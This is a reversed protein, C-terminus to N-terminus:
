KCGVNNHRCDHEERTMELQYISQLVEKNEGVVIQQNGSGGGGGVGPIVAGSYVKGGILTRQPAPESPAAVVTSSLYRTWKESADLFSAACDAKGSVFSAQYIRAVNTGTTSCVASASGSPEFSNWIVCGDIITASTATREPGKGYNIYWGKALAGAEAPAGTVQGTGNFQGVNVLDTDRFRKNDYKMAELGTNFTRSPDVGYSWFGYFRKDSTAAPALKSKIDVWGNTPTGCSWTTNNGTCTYEVKGSISAASGIDCAGAEDVAFTYTAKPAQCANGSGTSTSSGGLFKNGSYASSLEASKTGNREVTLNNTVKCGMEACGAPNSLRCTTGNDGLTNRDGTGLFTRMYGTDPQITNATIYTFGPRTAQDDSVQTNNVAVQLSRAAYWDKVEGEVGGVKQREGPIWFRVTWVQGGADAITATDFLLDADGTSSATNGLDLMAVGAPFPYNLKDSLQRTGDGNFFSWLTDGSGIDVMALGRGRVLYPDQGGNLMVVWQERAKVQAGEPGISWPGTTDAIAVAGIPPPKPAYNSFSEGVKLALPDCPQPWSWLFDGMESPGRGAQGTVQPARILDTLDLAFRHVGGTGTGVVAITRFETAQKKGDLSADGSKGVGDLWVERVMATSDVFYAHKGMKMRLKPLMDPPVFAWAEEGTGADYEYMGTVADLSKMKGNHFAHLMGSNSGVLVIRDRDGHRALYEDYADRKKGGGADYDVKLPTKGSYLTDLCQTTFGCFFKPTPAEVSIPSSHFIDNLLFERDYGRLAPDANLVDAGRYYRIVLKACDLPPLTALGLQTALASCEASNNSIGLYEQLVDANEEKFEVPKDLRTLKGDKNSDVITFIRRRKWNDTQGAPLPSGAPREKLKAGAEWFPKALKTPDDLRVFNGQDDEIVAKDDMDILHIDDCDGDKNLDKANTGGADKTCGLLVEPALSFRYLFGQWPTVAGKSPRFRPVLTGGARNVQLSSVSSSSFSTSRTQVSQIASKVAQALEDTNNATYYEGKGVEAANKLLKSNFGFGITYINLSQIGATNLDGVQAPSNQQLDQNALFKAVDDLMADNGDNDYCDTPTACSVAGGNIKQIAKKTESALTDGSPEGDTIVIISTVQCGWCWTRDQNGLAPPTYDSKFYYDSFKFTDKYVSNSSSFYQGINLLAKALPTGTNFSLGDVAEIYNTRFNTDFASSDQVIKDCQPNQSKVKAAGNKNDDDDWFFQSLGVRARKLSDADALIKKLVVKASVYKPPNFNLYRGMFIFNIDTRGSGTKYDNVGPKKFFGRNALCALCNDYKTKDAGGWSLPYQAKCAAEKTTWNASPSSSDGWQQYYYIRDDLFLNPKGTDSGMGTGTDPVPYKFDKNWSRATQDAVIASNNCGTHAANSSSTDGLAYFADHNSRQIFPLEKMSGSTDVLFHINSPAGESMFFREDSPIDQPRLAENALTTTLQCCAAPMAGGPATGLNNDAALVQSGALLLAGAFLRYHRSVNLVTM